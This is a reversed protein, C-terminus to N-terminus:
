QQRRRRRQLCRLFFHQDSGSFDSFFKIKESTGGIEIIQRQTKDDAATIQSLQQTENNPV